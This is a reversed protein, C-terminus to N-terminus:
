TAPRVPRKGRRTVLADLHQAILPAALLLRHIGGVHMGAVIGIMGERDVIAQDIDVVIEVHQRLQRRFPRYRFVAQGPRELQAVAHGEVAALVEGRGVHDVGELAQEVLFGSRTGARHHFEEIRVPDLRRIRVGDGEGGFFGTTSSGTSILLLNVLM